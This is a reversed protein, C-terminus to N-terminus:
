ELLTRNKLVIYEPVISEEITASFKIFVTAKKTVCFVSLSESAKSLSIYFVPEKQLQIQQLQM